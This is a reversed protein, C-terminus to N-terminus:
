EFGRGKKILLLILGLRLRRLNHAQELVGEQKANDHPSFAIHHGFFTTVFFTKRFQAVKL